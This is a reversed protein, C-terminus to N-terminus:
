SVMRYRERTWGIRALREDLTPPAARSGPLPPATSTYTHGTPTTTAVTHRGSPHDSVPRTHWGPAQKAHNCQVCLGQGNDASTPGSGIFPRVHDTHAVPADCWPTRCIGADRAAIFSALGAPFARATSEMAVLQGTDPDAFLRRLTAAAARRDDDAVQADQEALARLLDRAWEAPVPGYGPLEAPEHPTTGTMTGLPMVVAVTVPVAGATAQGTVREVLTDAMLQGRGRPDGTAKAAAAAQTLAACVAVGQAAPLLATVRAMTDPAPRFTVRRDNEAARARATVSAPDLRYAARRVVAALKRDGLGSLKAPDIEADVQSRQEATLCATERVILTARWESLLGTELAALTHPMERVVARAFGLHRSGRHPSDQRALAVQEAVGRAQRDAPESVAAAAARQSAAFSVTVRAQAAAAASKLRECATLLEVRAHDDLAAAEHGLELLREHIAAVEAGFGTGDRQSKMTSIM